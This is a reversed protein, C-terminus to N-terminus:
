PLPASADPLRLQIAEVDGRSRTVEDGRAVDTAALPDDALKGTVTRADHRVLEIWLSEAGGGGPIPFPVRVLLSAGSARSTDWQALAAGLRRQAEAKRAQSAGGDATNALVPGFFREALEVYGLAGEGDPPTIRAIFDNPDGTEPHVSTLTIAIPESPPLGADGPYDLGRARGLDERSVVVPSEYAGDVLAQAVGLVIEAAAEVASTPVASAEVDPAGWRSLGASLVRVVGEGKPEYLLQVRDHRFASAGEPGTVAHAAFDRATEIRGLLQDYVLGDIKEALAAAAAFAARVALHRQEIAAAVHVVALQTRRRLTARAAAPLSAATVDLDSHDLDWDSAAVADLHTSHTDRLLARVADCAAPDGCHRAQLLAGVAAPDLLAELEARPRDTLVGLEVVASAPHRLHTGPPASTTTTPVPASTVPPAPPPPSSRSSLLRGLVLLAVAIGIYVLRRRSV